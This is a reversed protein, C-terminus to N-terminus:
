RNNVVKRSKVVKLSSKRPPSKKRPRTVLFLVFVTAILAAIFVADTAVRSLTMDLIIGSLFSALMALLTYSKM